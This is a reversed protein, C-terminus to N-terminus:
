KLHNKYIYERYNIIVVWNSLLIRMEGEFYNIIGM